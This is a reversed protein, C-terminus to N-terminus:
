VADVMKKLEEPNLWTDNIESSYRFGEKLTKGEAHNTKGWFAHEPEIIYYSEFERSHRSEDETLLVEHLKKGPRIGIDRIKANPAAVAALDPIKMSPLKPVFIEGGKMLELSKIVFAVGQELSIWFRTMRKDTITIEGSKAQEKFLPIVSGRSGIVNGYRVVSLKTNKTGSYNNAQVFIKEAVM